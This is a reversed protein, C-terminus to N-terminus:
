LASRVHNRHLDNLLDDGFDCRPFSEDNVRQNGHERLAIGVSSGALLNKEILPPGNVRHVPKHGVPRLAMNLWIKNPDLRKWLVSQYHNRDM